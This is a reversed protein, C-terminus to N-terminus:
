IYMYVCGYHLHVYLKLCGAASCQLLCWRSLKERNHPQVRLLLKQTIVTLVTWNCVQVTQTQVTVTGRPLVSVTVPVTDRHAAIPMVTLRCECHWQEPSNAFSLQLFADKQEQLGTQGDTGMYCTCFQQVRRWPVQHKQYENFNGSENWNQKFDLLV